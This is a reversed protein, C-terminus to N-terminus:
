PKSRLYANVARMFVIEVEADRPKGFYAAVDPAMELVAKAEPTPVDAAPVLALGARYLLATLAEIGIRVSSTHRNYGSGFDETATLIGDSICVTDCGKTAEAYDADGIVAWGNISDSM